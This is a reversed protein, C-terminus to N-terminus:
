EGLGFGEVVDEGVEREEVDEFILLDASDPFLGDCARAGQVFDEEESRFVKPSGKMFWMEVREEGGEARVDRSTVADMGVEARGRSGEEAVVM